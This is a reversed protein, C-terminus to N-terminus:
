SGKDGGRASFEDCTASGQIVGRVLRCGGLPMRPFMYKCTDCRLDPKPAPRYNAAKKSLGWVRTAMPRSRGAGQGGLCAGWTSELLIDEHLPFSPRGGTRRDQPDTGQYEPHPSRPHGCGIPPGRSRRPWRMARWRETGATSCSRGGYGTARTETCGNSGRGRPKSRRGRKCLVLVSGGPGRNRLLGSGAAANTAARDVGTIARRGGQRRLRPATQGHGRRSPHQNPGSPASMVPRRDRADM